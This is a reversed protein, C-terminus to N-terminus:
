QDDILGEKGTIGLRVSVAATLLRGVDTKSSGCPKDNLRMAEKFAHSLREQQEVSGAAVQMETVLSKILRTKGYLWPMLEFITTSEDAVLAGFVFCAFRTTRRSPRKLTPCFRFFHAFFGIFDVSIKKKKFSEFFFFKKLFFVFFIFFTFFYVQLLAIFFFSSILNTLQRVQAISREGCVLEAIRMVYDALIIGESCKDRKIAKALMCQVFRKENVSFSSSQFSFSFLAM